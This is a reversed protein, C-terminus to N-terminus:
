TTPAPSAVKEVAYLISPEPPPDVRYHAHPLAGVRRFGANELSRQEALNEDFTCAFVSRTEDLTLLHDLALRQAQTGYGQGRMLPDALLINLEWDILPSDEIFKWARWYFRGLLLNDESRRILFYSRDPSNLFLERLESASMEPVRKHPGQAIPDLTMRILKGANEADAPELYVSKTALPRRSNARRILMKRWWSLPERDAARSASDWYPPPLSQTSYGREYFLDFIPEAQVEKIYQFEDELDSECLFGTPDSYVAYTGRGEGPDFAGPNSLMYEDGAWVAFAGQDAFSKMAKELGPLWDEVSPWEWFRITVDVRGIRDWPPEDILSVPYMRFSYSGTKWASEIISKDDLLEPYEDFTAAYINIGDAELHGDGEPNLPTGGLALIWLM